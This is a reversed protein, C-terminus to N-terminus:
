APTDLPKAAAPAGTAKTSARRRERMLLLCTGGGLLSLASLVLLAPAYSGILEQSKAV